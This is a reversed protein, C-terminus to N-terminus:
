VLGAKRFFERYADAKRDVALPYARSTSPMRTMQLVRGDAPWVASTWEGIKPVATSTLGALVGAAKEGTTALFRCGPMRELLTELCVPEIIELFKDSANDKLRIVAAATDHLAIGKEELFARILAEDFAGDPLRFHDVEDYFIIGMVRWFDNTKNPYYFEMSWRLPKPPFTGMILVKADTPIFPPFPHREIRNDSTKM